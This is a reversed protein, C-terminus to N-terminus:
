KAARFSIEIMVYEETPAKAQAKKLDFQLVSVSDDLKKIEAPDTVRARQASLDDIRKSIRDVDPSSVQESSVQAAAFGLDTLDGVLKSADAKRIRVTAKDTSTSVLTAGDQRALALAQDKQPAANTAPPNVATAAPNVPKSAPASGNAPLVPSVPTVPENSPAFGIARSVISRSIQPLPQYCPVAPKEDTPATVAPTRELSARLDSLSNFSSPLVDNANYLQAVIPPPEKAAVKQPKTWAQSMLLCGIGFAIGSGFFTVAQWSRKPVTGSESEVNM